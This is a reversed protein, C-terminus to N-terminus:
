QEDKEAESPYDTAVSGLLVVRGVNDRVGYALSGFGQTLAAVEHFRAITLKVLEFHNTTAM